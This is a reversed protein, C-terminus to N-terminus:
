PARIAHELASEPSDGESTTRAVGAREGGDAGAEELLAGSAVAGIMVCLVDCAATREGDPTKLIVRSPEIRTVESQWILELRGTELACRM